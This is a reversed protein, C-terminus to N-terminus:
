LPNNVASNTGTMTTLRKIDPEPPKGDMHVDILGQGLHTENERVDFVKTIIKLAYLL